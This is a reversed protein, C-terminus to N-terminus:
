HSNPLYNKITDVKKVWSFKGSKEAYIENCSKFSLSDHDTQLFNLVEAEVKQNDVNNKKIYCFLVNRNEDHLFQFKSVLDLKTYMEMVIQYPIVKGDKLVFTNALRGDISKIKKYNNKNKLDDNAYTVVDGIEYRIMPFSYQDLTSIVLRGTGTQSPENNNDLLEFYYSDEDVYMYPSNKMPFAMIGCEVAGYRQYGKHGFAKLFKEETKASIVEGATLLVKPKYQQNTAILYDAIVEVCSTVGHLIHPKYKRIEALQQEPTLNINLIVRKGNLVRQALSYKKEKLSRRVSVMTWWPRWGLEILSPLTKIQRLENEKKTIYHTSPKSSTGSTTFRLMKEKQRRKDLLLDPDTARIQDQTIRPLLAIDKFARIQEVPIDRYLDTYFPVNQKAHALLQQLKRLQHGEIEDRSRHLLKMEKYLLNVSALNM